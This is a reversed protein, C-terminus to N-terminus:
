TAESEVPSSPIYDEDRSDNDLQTDMMLFELEQQEQIDVASNVSSDTSFLEEQLRAREEDDSTNQSLDMVKCSPPEEFVHHVPDELSPWM